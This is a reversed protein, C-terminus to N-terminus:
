KPRVENWVPWWAEFEAPRVRVRVISGESLSLLREEVVEIFRARESATINQGAWRRLLAAADLKGLRKVVVDCIGEGPHAEGIGSIGEDTEVKVYNWDKYGKLVMAKVDTIKM